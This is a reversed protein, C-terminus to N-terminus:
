TKKQHSTERIAPVEHKTISTSKSSEPLYQM